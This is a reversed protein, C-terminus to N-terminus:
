QCVEVDLWCSNPLCLKQLLIKGMRRYEYLGSARNEDINGTFYTFADILATFESHSIRQYFFSCISIVSLNRMLKIAKTTSDIDQFYM